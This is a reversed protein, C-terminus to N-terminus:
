GQIKNEIYYAVMGAGFVGCLIKWLVWETGPFPLVILAVAVAFYVYSHKAIFANIKQKM